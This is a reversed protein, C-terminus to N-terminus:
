IADDDKKDKNTYILVADVLSKLNNATKLSPERLFKEFFYELDARTNKNM